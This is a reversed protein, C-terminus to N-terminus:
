LEDRYFFEEVMTLLEEPSRCRVVPCPLSKVFSSGYRKTVIRPDAVVVIGRDAVSRILRGFGQRFRIVAQPLSFERFPNGGAKQIQERRAEIVPDNVAAFPLRAVVVCSLADGTVDVGEWFSHTGLLVCHGGNRFIKTIRDRTGSKGHVLMRLGQEHMPEELLGAVRNMMDYSTFLGLARGDTISFLECMLSGLIDVYSLRGAGSPEPMFEAAYVACQRLYDFPSEAVSEVFRERAIQDFGLRRNIYRFSGSVQLTASCFVCSDKRDFLTENLTKAISLPAGFFSIRRNKRGAPEVWFVYESETAAAVFDLDAIFERLRAASSELSLAQDGFLSLGGEMAQRLKEAIEQLHSATEALSQKFADKTYRLTQEDFDDPCEVFASNKYVQRKLKNMPTNSDFSVDPPHIDDPDTICRFRVASDRGKVLAAGADFFRNAKRRTRDTLSRVASVKSSLLEHLDHDETVAGQDLHRKFLELIGGRHGVRGRTIRRLMVMLRMVSIEVSLHRTAVDELNHAEDFVIQAYPPLISGGTQAEAFVLAHNAVVIDSAMARMRAQQMFCRKYYRCGRGSCEEGNSALKSLFAPNAYGSGGFSDLDGDDTRLAWMVAGAFQRLEPREFEFMSFDILMGLQRLCLYNTRGKLLSVKLPGTKDNRNEDIVEKVLPLDKNMLQSQLNRTNTSIVVPVGNLQAWAAAPILYAISKGVGTGAEVVLHSRENFARSVSRLMNVQGRRSEYGPLKKSFFGEPMLHGATKGTDIPECDEFVPMFRKGPYSNRVPFSRIWADCNEGSERVTQAYRAFLLNLSSEELGAYIGELLELAWLPTSRLVRDVRLWLQWLAEGGPQREDLLNEPKEESNCIGTLCCLETISVASEDGASFFGDFASINN